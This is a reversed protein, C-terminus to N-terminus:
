KAQMWNDTESYFFTLPIGSVKLFGYVTPQKRNDPVAWDTNTVM